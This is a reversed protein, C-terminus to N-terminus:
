RHGCVVYWVVSDFKLLQGFDAILERDLGKAAALFQRMNQQGSGLAKPHTQLCGIELERRQHQVSLAIGGFEYNLQVMNRLVRGCISVNLDPPVKICLTQGLDEDEVDSCCYVVEDNCRCDVVEDCSDHM